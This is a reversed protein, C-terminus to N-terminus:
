IHNTVLLVCCEVEEVQESDKFYLTQLEMIIHYYKLTGDDIREFSYSHCMIIKTSLTISNKNM